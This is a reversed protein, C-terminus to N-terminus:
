RFDAAHDAAWRTFPLAPRGLVREATDTVPSGARAAETIFQIIAETAPAPGFQDRVQDESLEAVRIRRGIADGILEVQRRQTLPEPGTLMGDTGEATGLLAAVAVAAVDREHVPATTADPRLLGVVGDDRISRAWHAANNALVLPRVPTWDLGSDALAREISRHEEAIANGAAYPLLVSGSSLLVVREVDASRAAAVFGAVGGAPAYLFVRDVGALAAPLTDPRTLDAAVVAVDTPLDATALDRVSARVRQGAALLHDVVHRGISGRAGIVLSVGM